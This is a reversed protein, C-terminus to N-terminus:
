YDVSEGTYVVKQLTRFGLHSGRIRLCLGGLSLLCRDEQGLPPQNDPALFPAAEPARHSEGTGSAARRAKITELLFDSTIRMPRSKHTVQSKGM